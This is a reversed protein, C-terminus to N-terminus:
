NAPRPTETEMGEGGNVKNDDTGYDVHNMNIEALEILWNVDEDAFGEFHNVGLHLNKYYPDFQLEISTGNDFEMTVKRVTQVSLPRTGNLYEESHQNIWGRETLSLDTDILRDFISFVKEIQEDETVTVTNVKVKKSIGTNSVTAKEFRISKVDEANIVDFINELIFSFSVPEADKEWYNMDSFRFLHADGDNTVAILQAIDDHGKLKYFKQTETELYLDGIKSELTLKDFNSMDNVQLYSACYVDELKIGTAISVQESTQPIPVFLWVSVSVLLAFCAAISAWKVWANRKKKQVKEAPAAKMILEPDLDGLSKYINKNTM